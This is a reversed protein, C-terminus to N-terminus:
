FSNRALGKKSVDVLFKGSIFNRGLLMPYSMSSRDRLSLKIDFLQDFMRIKTLFIHRTETQGFSSKVVRERHVPFTLTLIEEEELHPKIHCNIFRHGEKEIIEFDECHLVSTEAGTDIKSEINYMGLEPLDVIEYRGITLKEKM